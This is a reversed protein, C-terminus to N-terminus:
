FKRLNKRLQLIGKYIVSCNKRLFNRIFTKLQYLSECGQTIEKYQIFKGSNLIQENYNSTDIKQLYERFEQYNIKKYEYAGNLIQFYKGFENIILKNKLDDEFNEFLSLANKYSLYAYEIYEYFKGTISHSNDVRYNYFVKDVYYISNAFLLVKLSFEHDEYCPYDNFRINNKDLFSKLYLKNYIYRIWNDSIQPNTGINCITNLKEGNYHSWKKQQNSINSIQRVYFYFVEAKNKNAKNILYEYTDLDLWDDSDIFHIYDGSAINLGNNRTYGPGSNQENFVLKIRDDKKAYEQLIERSNDTSCDDVCIIELNKYTQNIVSDLCQALYKEVNYVPIIVSIKPM